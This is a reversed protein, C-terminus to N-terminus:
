YYNVFECLVSISHHFLSSCIRSCLYPYTAYFYKLDFDQKKLYKRKNLLSLISLLLPNIFVFIFILLFINNWITLTKLFLLGKLSLTNFNCPLSPVKFPCNPKENMFFKAFIMLLSVAQLVDLPAAPSLQRIYYHSSANISFTLFELSPVNWPWGPQFRVDYKMNQGASFFTLGLFADRRKWERVKINLSLKSKKLPKM